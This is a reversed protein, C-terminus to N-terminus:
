VIPQERNDEAPAKVNGYEPRKSPFKGMGRGKLSNYDLRFNEPHSFYKKYDEPFQEQWAIKFLTDFEPFFKEDQGALIWADYRDELGLLKLQRVRAVFNRQAIGAALERKIVTDDISMVEEYHAHKGESSELGTNDQFWSKLIGALEKLNRTKESEPSPMPAAERRNGGFGIRSFLSM